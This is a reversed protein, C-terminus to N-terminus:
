NELKLHVSKVKPFEPTPHSELHYKVDLKLKELQKKILDMKHKLKECSEETQKKKLIVM